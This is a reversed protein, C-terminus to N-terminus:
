GVKKFLTELEIDTFETETVHTIYYSTDEVWLKRKGQKWQEIQNTNAEYGDADVLRSVTLRDEYIECKDVDINMRLQEISSFTLKEVIGLDQPNGLCGQEYNDEERVVNVYVKIYKYM